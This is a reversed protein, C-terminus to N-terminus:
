LAEQEVYIDLLNTYESNARKQFLFIGICGKKL